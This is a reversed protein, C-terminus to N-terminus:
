FGQVQVPSYRNTTTGDGLQGFTNSGWAWASGDSKGAISDVRNAAIAAVGTLGPLEVPSPRDTQTGDGVQGNGNQGWALVTGDSRVVLVHNDGAAVIGVNVLGPVQVPTGQGASSAGQGLQGNANSGWVWVTGGNKIAASHGYGAAIATSGSLGTVQVPTSRNMMTGDGLQGSGNWGWAWVTGDAKRALSHAYGAAVAVVGTLGTVQVPTTRVVLTGDGLEGATNNGWAWVTGDSKVALSHHWGAAIGTVGALGSVLTPTRVPGPGIFDWGWMWVTGDRKLALSHSGGAAIQVVDTLGTARVPSPRNTTTGDGLQGLANSGWGWAVGDGKLGLMHTQGAAVAISPMSSAVVYDGTALDSTTWGSRYAIAKITITTSVTIASAYITGISETPTTGDTTYRITAGSTTTSLSVTQTLTYTGPAPSFTPAAVVGTVTITYTGSTASSTTWGTKYAVAKVTSTTAIVVPSAYVTGVTESPSTGDTTYRITAGATTTAISVSQASGYTGPAPSFTPAAVQALGGTRTGTFTGSGGGVRTATGAFTGAAPDVTGVITDGSSATLTFTSNARMTGTLTGSGSANDSFTGTMGGAADISLTWTGQPSGGAAYTGSWTGVYLALISDRAHAQAVSASVLPAGVGLSGSLFASLSADTAGAFTFTKGVAAARVVSPITIGNSPDGDADLTLLFQVIKVVTPDSEPATASASPVLDVPTVIGKGAVTGLTIGGLSFTVPQGVEYTFSGDVGTTGAQSGSSFNLGEVAGDVFRGTATAPATPGTPGTAEPTSTSGCAAQFALIMALLPVGSARTTMGEGPSVHNDEGPLRAPRVPPMFRMDMRVAWDPRRGARAAGALM